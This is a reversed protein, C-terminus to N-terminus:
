LPFICYFSNLLLSSELFIAIKVSQLIIFLQFAFNEPYKQFRLHDNILAKDIQM